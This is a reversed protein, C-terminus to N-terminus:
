RHKNQKVKMVFPEGSLMKGNIYATRDDDTLNDATVVALFQRNPFYLVLIWDLRAIYSEGESEGTYYYQSFFETEKGSVLSLTTPDLSIDEYEITGGKDPFQYEYEYDAKSCAFLCLSMLFATIGTKLITKIQNM